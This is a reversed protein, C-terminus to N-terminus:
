HKQAALICNSPMDEWRLGDGLRVLPNLNDPYGPELYAEATLLEMGLSRLFDAYDELTFYGFQENVESSYAETGWTYTYLFERIFNIDAHLVNNEDLSVQEPLWQDDAGRLATLGRFDKLYNRLFSIGEPTRMHLTCIRSGQSLVGDRIVIRGGPLLSDCANKLATKVANINFQSGDFETYSYIEHLISSFIISDVQFPLPGDVFNHRLVTYHHHEEKIKKELREIVTSSIDTGIITKEPFRQELRDLLVGGGSGVDVIKDGVIHDLTEYKRSYQADNMTSLYKDENNLRDFQDRRFGFLDFIATISKQYDILGSREAEVCFTILSDCVPTFRIDFFLIDGQVDCVFSVHESISNQNGSRYERLCYEIIRKKYINIKKSGEYDYHLTRALHYFSINRVNRLGCDRIMSFMATIEERTFASLATYPYWLDCRFIDELLAQEAAPLETVGRYHEPFVKQVRPLPADDRLPAGSCIRAVLDKVDAEVSHWLEESVASIIAENLANLLVALQLATFYSPELLEQLPASSSLAVEGRLYQGLLGHTKILRYVAQKMWENDTSERLYIEASGENHVHLAIGQQEWRRRDAATGGKAVEAWQLTRVICQRSRSDEVAAVAPCQLTREVYALVQNQELEEVSLVREPNNIREKTLALYRLWAHDRLAQPTVNKGFFTCEFM